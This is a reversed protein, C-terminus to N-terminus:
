GDETPEPMPQDFLVENGPMFISSYGERVAQVVQDMRRTIHLRMAAVARGTDRSEIAAMIQRHEDKTDRVRARMDIWRIYRIRENIGTLQRVLEANGSLRAIAIHFAEDGATVERVTKGVYGLGRDHLTQKLAAIGEASGQACVRAVAATELIERMEYLQHITDPDLPRCCFGRGPQFTVLQEAVLRNLAERLPTRSAQLERALAGENLREGPRLRFDVAMEKLQAYLAEVRGEGM